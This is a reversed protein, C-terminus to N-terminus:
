LQRLGACDDCDLVITAVVIVNILFFVITASAVVISVIQDIVFTAVAVVITAINKFFFNM